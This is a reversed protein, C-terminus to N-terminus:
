QPRNPRTRRRRLQRRQHCQPVGRAPHDTSPARPHGDRQACRRHKQGLRTRPQTMTIVFAAKPVGKAAKQRALVATVIDAAAWVDLPSPKAPILVVDAARVADATTKTMGPPGDIIVWDYDSTMSRVLRLLDGAAAGKVTLTTPAPDDNAGWNQSSAQPDADLLLVNANEALVWALNTALTTKGTGGKQNVIAVVPM